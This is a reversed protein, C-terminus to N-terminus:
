ILLIFHLWRKLQAKNGDHNLTLVDLALRFSLGVLATTFRFSLGCTSNYFSRVTACM